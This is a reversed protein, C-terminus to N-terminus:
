FNFNFGLTWYFSNEISEMKTRNIVTGDERVTQIQVTAPHVPIAYTPTFNITCKGIKYNIPLSPEYDLLKFTSANLVTGTVAAIGTQVPQGKQKITYKRKKYYDNYYNQTSASASLTPTVDMKDDLLYFTHELGFLGAFDLKSGINLTGTFTTKIFGFDFGNEYAMSASIESTVSTSQSNYFYKSATFLGDYQGATFIYGGEVTVLDIRSATTNKLYNISVSAYLGTKNYYSFSPIFYPLITSDKRGLYVDNSQYSMGAEFHSSAPLGKRDPVSDKLSIVSQIEGSDKVNVLSDSVNQSRGDQLWLIAVVFPLLRCTTKM